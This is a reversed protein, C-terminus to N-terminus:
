FSSECPSFIARCIMKGFIEVNLKAGICLEVFSWDGVSRQVKVKQEHSLTSWRVIMVRVWEILISWSTNHMIMTSLQPVKWQRASWLSLIAVGHLVVTDDALRIKKNRTLPWDWSGYKDVCKRVCVASSCIACHCVDLVSVWDDLKACTYFVTCLLSIILDSIAL